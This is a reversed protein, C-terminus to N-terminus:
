DRLLDNLSTKARTQADVRKAKKSGPKPGPKARPKPPMKQVLQPILSDVVTNSAHTAENSTLFEAWLSETLKGIVEPNAHKTLFWRAFAFSANM